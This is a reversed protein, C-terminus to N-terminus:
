IIYIWIEIENNERFETIVDFSIRSGAEMRGAEMRSMLCYAHCLWNYRDCVEALIQLFLQRDANTEFIDEQRDGRSTVHYLAGAFELRIPRAM